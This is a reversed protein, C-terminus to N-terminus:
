DSLPRFDQVIYKTKLYRKEVTRAIEVHARIIIEKGLYKAMNRCLKEDPIALELVSNDFLTKMKGTHGLLNLGSLEGHYDGLPSVTSDIYNFIQDRNDTTITYHFDLEKKTVRGRFDMKSIGSRHDIKNALSALMPLFRHSLEIIENKRLNIKKLLSQPPEKGFIPFLACFYNAIVSACFSVIIPHDKTFQSVEQAISLALDLLLSGERTDKFQVQLFNQRLFFPRHMLFERIQSYETEQRSLEFSAVTGFIRQISILITGLDYISVSKRAPSPGDLSIILENERYEM